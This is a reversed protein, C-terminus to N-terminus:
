NFLLSLVSQIDLWVQLLPLLLIEGKSGYSIARVSSAEINTHSSMEMVSSSSMEVISEAAMTSMSAISMSELTVEASSSSSSFATQMSAMHVSSASFATHLSTAAASQEMVLMQAPKEVLATLIAFLLWM